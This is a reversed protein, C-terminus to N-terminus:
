AALSPLARLMQVLYEILQRLMWPLLMLFVVGLAALKPLFTLTQEQLSTVAQFLSVLVGVALATLLLPGATFLALMVARHVLDLALETTM